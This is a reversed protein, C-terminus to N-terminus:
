SCSLTKLKLCIAFLFYLMFCRRDYRIYDLKSRYIPDMMRFRTEISNLDIYLMQMSCLMENNM